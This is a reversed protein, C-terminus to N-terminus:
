HDLLLVTHLKEIIKIKMPIRVNKFNFLEHMKKFLIIFKLLLLRSRFDFIGCITKSLRVKHKLRYLFRLNFTFSEHTPARSLFSLANKANNIKESSIRKQMQTKDRHITYQIYKQFRCLKYKETDFFMVQYVKKSTKLITSM